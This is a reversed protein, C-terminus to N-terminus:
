PLLMSPVATASRWHAAQTAPAVNEPTSLAASHAAVLARHPGPDYVLAAAVALLSKAHAAQTSPENLNPVLALVVAVSLQMTHLVHATTWPWIAAPVATASRWHAAHTAPEVYEPSSLSAAHTATLM